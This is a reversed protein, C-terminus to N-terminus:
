KQTTVREWIDNLKEEQLATLKGRKEYQDRISPIFEKEWDNMRDYRNLCDEILTEIEDM